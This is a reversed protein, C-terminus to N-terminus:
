VVCARLLEVCDPGPGAAQFHCAKAEAVKALTELMHKEAPKNLVQEAHVPVRSIPLGIHHVNKLM